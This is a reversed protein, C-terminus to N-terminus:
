TCQMTTELPVFFPPSAAFSNFRQPSRTTATRAQKPQGAMGSFFHGLLAKKNSASQREKEKSGSQKEKEKTGM